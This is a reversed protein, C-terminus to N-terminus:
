LASHQNSKSFFMQM